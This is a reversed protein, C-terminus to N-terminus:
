LSRQFDFAQRRGEVDVEVEIRLVDRPSVPVVGIHSDYDGTSAVRLDIPQGRGSLDRARAQVQGDVPHEVGESDVRRLAVVLLATGSTREIGYQRATPEGLSQTPLLNYHVRLNGGLEAVAPAPPVFQAQRPADAGCGTLLALVLALGAALSRQLGMM